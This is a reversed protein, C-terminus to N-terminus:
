ADGIENWYELPNMVRLLCNTRGAREAFRDDCTVLVDCGGAEAFALHAADLPRLGAVTFDRIREEVQATLAASSAARQACKAVEMRPEPDPDADNEFSLATSWSLNDVGREIRGWIALVARTESAVRQQTQDDFPRKLACMDLYLKM